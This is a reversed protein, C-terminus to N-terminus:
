WAKIIKRAEKINQIAVRYLARRPLMAMATSSKLVKTTLQEIMSSISAAYHMDRLEVPFKQHRAIVEHSLESLEAGETVNYAGIVPAKLWFAFSEQLMKRLRDARFISDERRIATPNTVMLQSPMIRMEQNMISNVKKLLSPIRHTLLFLNSMGTQLGDFDLSGILTLANSVGLGGLGVPTFLWLTLDENFQHQQTAWKRVTDLILVCYLWYVVTLVAGAVLAGRATSECKQIDETINAAVTEVYNTMKVIARVGCNIARNSYRIENLFIAFETSIFTKDFSIEIGAAAWIKAMQKRLLNVNEQLKDTKLSVRVVGDDVLVAFRSTGHVIKREKLLMAATHMVALHYFTLKKGSLGEYDNGTKKLVHHVKRKVYHLDGELFLKDLQLIHEQGFADSWQRNLARQIEIPMHPSWKNVDLSVFVQTSEGEAGLAETVHNMTKQKDRISKGLVYGELYKGYNAISMEYESMVLRADTHNEMFWRGFPKKAEAKDDTKIHWYLKDVGHRLNVMSIPETRTVVNLLHNRDKRELKRLDSEYRIAEIGLPCIAKDKVMDFVDLTHDAYMFQGTFVVDEVKDLTVLDPNVSPYAIEWNVTPDANDLVGPCVGHRAHYAKIMLRKHNKMILEFLDTDTISNQLAYERRQREAAGFYDFDASPLIKYTLLVELGEKIPLATVLESIAVCDLIKHLDDKTAKALQQKYSVDDIDSSYRALGIFYAVDLGRCLWQAGKYSINKCINCLTEVYRNYAGVLKLRNEMTMQGYTNFYFNSNAIGRLMGDIRDVDERTLVYTTKRDVLFLLHGHLYVDGKWLRRAERTEIKPMVKGEVVAWKCERKYRGNYKMNYVKVLNVAQERHPLGHEAWIRTYELSKDKADRPTHQGLMLGFFFLQRVQEQDPIEPRVHKRKYLKSFVRYVAQLGIMTPPLITILKKLSPSTKVPGGDYIDELLVNGALVQEKLNGAVIGKAVPFDGFPEVDFDLLQSLWPVFDKKPGLSRFAQQFANDRYVASEYTSM